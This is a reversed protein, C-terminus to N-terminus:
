VGAILVWDAAGYTWIYLGDLTFVLEGPTGTWGPKTAVQTNIPLIISGSQTVKFGDERVSDTGLGVIFPSTSDNQKNYSGVVTQYSGSAVTGQGIAVSGSAIAISRDGFAVSAFGRAETLYGASLSTGGSSIGKGSSLAYEGTATSAGVQLSISNENFLLGDSAKFKSGSTYQVSGNSGSAINITTIQSGNGDYINGSSSYQVLGSFSASIYQSSLSSISM